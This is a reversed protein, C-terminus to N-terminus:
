PRASRSQRRMMTASLRLMLEPAMRYLRWPLRATAPAVILARGRAVGRLVDQAFRDPSYFRRVGMEAAQSRM